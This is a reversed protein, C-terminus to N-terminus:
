TSWGPIYGSPVAGLFSSGGFNATYSQGATGSTGGFTVFPVMTGAPLAKGNVGTAPNAAGDDNWNGVFPKVERVWFFRTDLNVAVGFTQPPPNDSLFMSTGTDSGNLWFEGFNGLRKVMGGTTASNGMGTFTSGTTGIGFGVNDGQFGQINTQTIEFYILGATKGFASAVRAGQDASTTGTNTATLNGNTLTVNSVTAPDFTVAPFLAPTTPVTNIHGVMM